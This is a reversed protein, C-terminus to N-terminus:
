MSVPLSQKRKKAPIGTRQFELKEQIYLQKCEEVFAPDQYHKVLCDQMASNEKRCKFTMLLGSEKCCHSFAEVRDACLVKAKKKMINPILIDKEVHRLHMEETNTSEM